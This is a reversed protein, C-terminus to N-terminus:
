DVQPLLVEELIWLRDLLFGTLRPFGGKLDNTLPTWSVELVIGEMM